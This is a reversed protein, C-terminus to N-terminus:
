STLSELLQAIEIECRRRRQRAPNRRQRVYTTTQFEDAHVAIWRPLKSGILVIQAGPGTQRVAEIGLHHQTAAISDMILREDSSRGATAGPVRAEPGDCGPDRREISDSGIPPQAIWKRVPQRRPRPARESQQGLDAVR